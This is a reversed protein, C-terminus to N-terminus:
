LVEAFPGAQYTCLTLNQVILDISELMYQYEVDFLMRINTFEHCMQPLKSFSCCAMRPAYRGMSPWEGMVNQNLIARM